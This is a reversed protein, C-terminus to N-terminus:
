GTESRKEFDDEARMIAESISPASGHGVMKIVNNHNKLLTVNWRQQDARRLRLELEYRKMMNSLSDLLISDDAYSQRSHNEKRRNLYWELLYGFVLVGAIYFSTSSRQFGDLILYILFLGSLLIKFRDM